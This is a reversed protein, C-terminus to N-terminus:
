RSTGCARPLGDEAPRAGGRRAHRVAHRRAQLRRALGEVAQAAPLERAARRRDRRRGRAVSDERRLGELARATDVIEKAEPEKQTPARAPRALARTRDRHPLRAGDGAPPYMKCLRDGVSPRSGSCARPTASGRSGRSRRSRSSRRSTTPATSRRHRVPDGRGPPARRLGHRHGADAIREPNLFREFLLGYRLPDLDTIRLSYSVVRAPPASGRGPGSASAAAGARVPDPGVRDPLLRRVGHLMIVGLEHEIRDRSRRRCRGGYRPVRARTWSSASTPTTRRHGGPTEFRPLHYRQDVPARDGYM